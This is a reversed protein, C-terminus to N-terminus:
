HYALHHRRPKHQNAQPLLMSSYLISPQWSARLDHGCTHVQGDLGTHMQQEHIKFLSKYKMHYKACGGCYGITAVIVAQLTLGWGYGGHIHAVAVPWQCVQLTSPVLCPSGATDTGMRVGWAHGRCVVSLTSGFCYGSLVWRVVPSVTSCPVLWLDACFYAACCGGVALL